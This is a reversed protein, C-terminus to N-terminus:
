GCNCTLLLASASWFDITDCYNSYMPHSNYIFPTITPEFSRSSTSIVNSPGRRILTLISESCVCNLALAVIGDLSYRRDSISNPVVITRSFIRGGFHRLIHALWNLKNPELVIIREATRFFSIMSTARSTVSLFSDCGFMKGNWKYRWRIRRGRHYNVPHRIRNQVNSALAVAITSCFATQIPMRQNNRQGLSRIAIEMNTSYFHHRYALLLWCLAMTGAFRHFHLAELGNTHKEELCKESVM